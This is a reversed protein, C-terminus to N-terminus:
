RRRSANPVAKTAVGNVNSAPKPIGSDHRDIENGAM